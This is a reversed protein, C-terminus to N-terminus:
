SSQDNVIRLSSSMTKRTTRAAQGCRTARPPPLMTLMPEIEPERPAQNMGCFAWPAALPPTSASVLWRTTSPPGCRMRTLATLGAIVSVGCM